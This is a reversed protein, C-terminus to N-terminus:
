YFRLSDLIEDPIESFKPTLCTLNTLDSDM